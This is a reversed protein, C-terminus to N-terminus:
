ESRSPLGRGSHALPFHPPTFAAVSAPFLGRGSPRPFNRGAPLPATASHVMLPRRSTPCALHGSSSAGSDPIPRVREPDRSFLHIEQRGFRM